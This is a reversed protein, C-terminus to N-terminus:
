HRSREAIGGPAFTRLLSAEKASTRAHGTDSAVPRRVPGGSASGQLDANSPGQAEIGHDVVEAVAVPDHQNGM